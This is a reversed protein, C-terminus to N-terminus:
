GINCKIDDSDRLPYRDKGKRYPYCRSHGKGQKVTRGPEECTCCGSEGNHMTMNLIYGKAQLDVIGLFIGLKVNILSDGIRVPIGHEYLSCMEEGFANMYQLFPPSAKGQWIGVLVMNERAFRQCLPIENIAIFIPWLKVKASTYLPIGDTNFIGSICNDGALFQGEELLLRYFSGDTIDRQFSSNSSKSLKAKKKSNFIKELLGDQELIYKLQTKVDAILFFQRAHHNAKTQASYAGRYRFGPCSPTECKFLDQNQPFVKHCIHCYHCVKFHVKDIVQFFEEFKLSGLSSSYLYLVQLLSILDNVAVGTLNHRLLFGIMAVSQLQLVTFSQCDKKHSQTETQEEDNKDESSSAESVESESSETNFNLSDNSDSDSECNIEESNVSYYANINTSIVDEPGGNENQTLEEEMESDDQSSDYHDQVPNPALVDENVDLAVAHQKEGDGTSSDATEQEVSKKGQAEKQYLTRRPIPLSPDDLYRKKVRKLPGVLFFHM